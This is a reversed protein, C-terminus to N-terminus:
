SCYNTYIILQLRATRRHYNNAADALESDEMCLEFIDSLEWSSSLIHISQVTIEPNVIKQINNVNKFAPYVTDM